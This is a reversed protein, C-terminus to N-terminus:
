QDQEKTTTPAPCKTLRSGTALGLHLAQREDLEFVDTARPDRARSNPELAQISLVAGPRDVFVVDIARRMGFSHVSNCRPILLARSAGLAPRWLLGRLRDRGGARHVTLQVCDDIMWEEAIIGM